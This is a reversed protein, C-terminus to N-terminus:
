YARLPTHSVAHLGTCPPPLVEYNLKRCGFHRHLDYSSHRHIKATASEPVYSTPIIPLPKVDSPQTIAPLLHSAEAPVRSRRCSIAKTTAARRAAALNHRTSMPESYELPAAPDSPTIPLLFDDSDDIPMIFSPFTLWCGTDDAILSCGAGRRRHTRISFLPSNLLPVHYVKRLLVEHGALQCRVTGIGHIPVHSDDAVVVYHGADSIDKYDVFYRRDPFLDRSAGSDVCLYSTVKQKNNGTKGSRASSLKTPIWADDGQTEATDLASLRHSFRNHCKVTRASASSSVDPPPPPKLSAHAKTAKTRLAQTREMAQIVDENSSGWDLFEGGSSGGGRAFTSPRLTCGGEMERDLAEAEASSSRSQPLGLWSAVWAISRVGAGLVLGGLAGAM